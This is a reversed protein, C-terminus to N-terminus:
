EAIWRPHSHKLAAGEATDDGLANVLRAGERATRRLVANVFGAGKPRDRKALEVSETVAAHDPAGDLYLLQLAGIRLAALLPADIRRAPREALEGIVHDLTDKRQVSEFALRTALARDRPDLDTAAALLARDTYAGDEFTRRVAAYAAARSATVAM